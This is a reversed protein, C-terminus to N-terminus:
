LWWLDGLLLAYSHTMLVAQVSSRNAQKESNENNHKQAKRREMGEFQFTELLHIM